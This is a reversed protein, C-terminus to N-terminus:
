LRNIRCIIEDLEEDTFSVGFVNCIKKYGNIFESICEEKPKHLIRNEFSIRLVFYLMSLVSCLAFVAISVVMCIDYFCNRIAIYCDSAFSLIGLEIRLLYYKFSHEKKKM